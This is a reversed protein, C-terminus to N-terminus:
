YNYYDPYRNYKDESTISFLYSASIGYARNYTQLFAPNIDKLGMEYYVGMNLGKKLEFGTKFKLGYDFPTVQDDWTTGVKLGGADIRVNNQMFTGNNNVIRAAYPGAGIYWFLKDFDHMYTVCAPMKLYGLNYNTYNLLLPNSQEFSAGQYSFYLEPQFSFSASLPIDSTAGVHFKLLTKISADLPNGNSNWKQTAFTPGAIVGIKIQAQLGKAMIILGILFFLKKM